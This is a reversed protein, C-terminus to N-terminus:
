RSSRASGLTLVSNRPTPACRRWNAPAVEPYTRGASMTPYPSVRRGSIRRIVRGGCTGGSSSKQKFTLYGMFHRMESFLIQSFELEKKPLGSRLTAQSPGIECFTAPIPPGM